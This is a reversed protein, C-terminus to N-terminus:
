WMLYQNINITPITSVKNLKYFKEIDTPSNGILFREYYNDYNYNPRYEPLILTEPIKYTIDTHNNSIRVVKTKSMDILVYGLTSKVTDILEINRFQLTIDKTICMDIVLKTTDGYEDIYDGLNKGCYEGLVYQGATYKNELLRNATGLFVLDDTYVYCKYNLESTKILINQALAEEKIKNITNDFNNKYCPMEKIDKKDLICTNIMDTAFEDDPIVIQQVDTKDPYSINFNMYIKEGSNSLNSTIGIMSSHSNFQNESYSIPICPINLLKNTKTSNLTDLNIGINDNNFMYDTVIYDINNVKKREAKIM